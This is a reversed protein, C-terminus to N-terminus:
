TMEPGVAHVLFALVRAEDRWAAYRGSSGFHGAGMEVRLAIPEDSTTHERLALVWKAAEWFGVRPDNVGCTALITPYPKAGVNEIPAYARMSEYVEQSEAPNGWEEYEPITLPLTPDLMTNMVDVFPVEAVAAGFLEPARNLAAGVLLGGASGGRIALHPPDTLGLEILREAVAVVDGFTNHKHEFKGNEYWDRGLAGGGRVHAIAFVFGRDLLSLRAVSFAPDITIEYAGYGYLVAPGPGDPRDKAAVLSIPVRTGDPATAWERWTVYRDSDFDGLVEQQKLTTREGTALDITMVSGPTVMSGYGFRLISTNTEVNTGNSVTSVAEPMEIVSLEGLGADTWTAHRMRSVGEFREFVILHEDFAELGTIMVDPHEAVLEVWNDATTADDPTVMLRFNKAGDNTIVVFQDGRHATGYEIGDRRPQLCRPETEPADAPIVWAEDTISSSVGIQIFSDDRELGVGCNFREDPEEFVLRDDASDSGIRHHWVQHARHAEDARMYFFSENDLAWASGYSVDDIVDGLDTNTALDRVRLTFREDGDNDVAYLLRGHNPSVDFVGIEFYEQDGAEVNEDFVIQEAGPEGDDGLKQRCHIGYSKGEETRGYYRWGDKEVPVSLDTEKVRSKIEDFIADQTALTPELLAEAYRNEAELHETVSPDDDVNRIWAHPDIVTEGFLTREVPRPEPRPPQITRSPGSAESDDSAVPESSNAHSETM